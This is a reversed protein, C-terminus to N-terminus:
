GGVVVPVLHTDRTGDGLQGSFNSGWCMGRNNASVGCTHDADAEIELFKRGGAVPVPTPSSGARGTGLQANSGDGWCYGRHDTTVDCTFQM